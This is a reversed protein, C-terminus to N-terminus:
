LRPALAWAVPGAPQSTVPNFICCCSLTLFRSAAPELELTQSSQGEGRTVCLLTEPVLPWGEELGRLWPINVSLGMMVVFHIARYSMSTYLWSPAGHGRTLVEGPSAERCSTPTGASVVPVELPSQSLWHQCGEQPHPVPGKGVLTSPTETLARHPRLPGSALTCVSPPGTRHPGLHVTAGSPPGSLSQGWRGWCCLCWSESSALVCM